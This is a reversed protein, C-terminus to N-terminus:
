PTAEPALAERANRYHALASRLPELNGLGCRRCRDGLPDNGALLDLAALEVQDALRVLECLRLKENALHTGQVPSVANV